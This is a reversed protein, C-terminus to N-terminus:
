VPRGGIVNKDWLESVTYSQLWEDYSQQDLKHAITCDNKEDREVITIDDIDFNDILAPSQTAIIVQAHLSADRIMEALQDIAYPHLGLEPEDIVIVAPMTDKPQLLLTALAIFRISGDSFQDSSLVYDNGSTDMWGLSVYGHTPELYFDRFQPMVSRVYRVIRQYSASFNRRLFLLFSALNNGESQLYHASEETSAQRMPSSLSSDSFQFVKSGSLIRKVMKCPETTASLLGCENYDSVLQQRYPKEEKTLKKCEIEEFNIILRNPVAHTLSFRYVDSWQESEMKLSANICPTKKSGYHLFKQNTGNKAIFMQLSGNMMYGLMKFFSIINSKGSGNAGLLININGFNLVLPQGSSISKFGRLELQVLRNNGIKM